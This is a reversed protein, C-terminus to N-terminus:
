GRLNRYRAGEAEIKEESWCVSRLKDRQEATPLEEADLEEADM